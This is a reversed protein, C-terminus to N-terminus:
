VSARDSGAPNTPRTNVYRCTILVVAPPALLTALALLDTM